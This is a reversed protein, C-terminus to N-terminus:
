DIIRISPPNNRTDFKQPWDSALAYASRYNYKILDFNPKNKNLWMTVRDSLAWGDNRQEARIAEEIDQIAKEVDQALEESRERRKRQKTDRRSLYHERMKLYDGKTIIHHEVDRRYDDGVLADPSNSNIWSATEIKIGLQGKRRKDILYEIGPAIERDMAMIVATDYQGSEAILILDLCLRTALGKDGRDASVIEHHENKRRMPLKFDNEWREKESYLGKRWPPSEGPRMMYIKVYLESSVESSGPTLAVQRDRFKRGLDLVPVESKDFAQMAGQRISPHHVLLVLRPHPTIDREQNPRLNGGNSISESTAM